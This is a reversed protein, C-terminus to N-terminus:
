EGGDIDGIIEKLRNLAKIVYKIETEPKRKGYCLVNRKREIAGMLKLIEDREPFEQPVREDIKSDKKFIRHDFMEGLSILNLRHMYISFLEISAQSANYGINRQNELLGQEICERLKREHEELAKVHEEVKM